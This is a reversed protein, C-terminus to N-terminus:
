AALTVTPVVVAASHMAMRGSNRVMNSRLLLGPTNHVPLMPVILGSRQMLGSGPMGAGFKGGGNTEIFYAGNTVCFGIKDGECTAGQSLNKNDPVPTIYQFFHGQYKEKPSFYFSFRTDTGTFGGHVYHHRVPKDRWEDIDVYPAKFMTDQTATNQGFIRGIGTILLLLCIMVHLYSKKRKM